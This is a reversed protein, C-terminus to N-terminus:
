LHIARKGTVKQVADFRPVPAGIATLKANPPLPPPEDAPVERTVEELDHGVIGYLM